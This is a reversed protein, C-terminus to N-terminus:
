RKKAMLKMLEKAIEVDPVGKARLDDRLKIASPMLDPPIEGNFLQTEPTDGKLDARGSAMEEVADANFGLQTLHRKLRDRLNSTAALGSEQSDWDGPLAVGALEQDVNSLRQSGGQAAKAVGFIGLNKISDFVKVKEDGSYRRRELDVRNAAIGGLGAAKPKLVEPILSDIKDLEHFSTLAAQLYGEEVSNLEVYTDAADEFQGVKLGQVPKMTLADYVKGGGPPKHLGMRRRDDVANTTQQINYAKEAQERKRLHDNLETATPQRGYEETLADKAIQIKNPAKAERPREMKLNGSEDLSSAELGLAKGKAVRAAQGAPSSAQIKNALEALKIKASLMNVSNVLAENKAVKEAQRGEIIGALLPLIAESIQGAGSNSPVGRYFPSQAVAGFLAADSADGEEYQSAGGQELLMPLLSGMIDDDAGLPM